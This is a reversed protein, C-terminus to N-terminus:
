GLSQSQDRELGIPNGDLDLDEEQEAEEEAQDILLELLLDLKAEIRDLQDKEM